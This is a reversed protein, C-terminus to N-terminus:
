TASCVIHARHTCSPLGRALLSRADEHQVAGMLQVRGGLDHEEVMAELAGRKPGDGGIVFDLDPHRACLIPIIAIQLDIGKRYVMRNLIVIRRVCPSRSGSAIGTNTTGAKQSGPEVTALRRLPVSRIKDPPLDGRPDPQFKDTDVANPIVHVRGPPLCARLV